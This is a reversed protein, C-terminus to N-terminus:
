ARPRALMEYDALLQNFLEPQKEKLEVAYDLYKRIGDGLIKMVRQMLAPEGAAYHIFLKDPNLEKFTTVDSIFHLIYLMDLFIQEFGNQRAIEMFRRWVDQTAVYEMIVPEMAELSAYEVSDAAKRMEKLEPLSAARIKEFTIAPSKLAQFDAIYLNRLELRFMTSKIFVLQKKQNNQARAETFRGFVFVVVLVIVPIPALSDNAYILYDVHKLYLHSFHQMVVLVIWIVLLYIYVRYVDRPKMFSRELWREGKPLWGKFM